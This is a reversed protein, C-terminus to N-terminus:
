TLICRWGNELWIMQSCWKETGLDSLLIGGEKFPPIFAKINQSYCNSVQCYAACFQLSSHKKKTTAVPLTVAGAGESASSCVM